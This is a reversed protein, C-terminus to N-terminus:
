MIDTFYNWRTAHRDFITGIQLEFTEIQKYKSKTWSLNAGKIM